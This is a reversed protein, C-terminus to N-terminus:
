AFSIMKTVNTALRLKTVNITSTNCKNDILVNTVNTAAVGYMDMYEYEYCKPVWSFM